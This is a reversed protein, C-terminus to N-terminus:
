TSTITSVEIKEGKGIIVLDWVKERNQRVFADRQKSVYIRQLINDTVSNEGLNKKTYESAFDSYEQSDFDCDLHGTVFTGPVRVLTFIQPLTMGAETYARLMMDLHEWINIQWKFEGKELQTRSGESFVFKACFEGCLVRILEPAKKAFHSFLFTVWGNMELLTTNGVFWALLRKGYDPFHPSKLDKFVVLKDKFPGLQRGFLIADFSADGRNGHLFEDLYQQIADWEYSEFVCEARVVERLMRIIRVFNMDDFTDRVAKLIIYPGDVGHTELRAVLEKTDLKTTDLSTGEDSLEVL